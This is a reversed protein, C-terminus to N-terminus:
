QRNSSYTKESIQVIISNFYSLQNHLCISVDSAALRTNWRIKTSFETFGLNKWTLITLPVICQFKEKLVNWSICNWPWNIFCSNSEHFVNVKTVLMWQAHKEDIFFNHKCLFSITFFKISFIDYLFNLFVLVYIFLVMSSFWSRFFYM